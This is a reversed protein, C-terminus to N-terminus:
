RHTLRPARRSAPAASRLARDITRATTRGSWGNLAGMPHAGAATHWLGDIPTKYGAMSPVPRWPGMQTTTMDAHLINGRYNRQSLENPGKVYSGIVADKTGPAYGDVIDLCHDHFADKHDDWNRGGSLEYPVAPAYVYLTEGESGPPVQTRDIASPMAVWMPVEEPLEGNICSSVGRRVYDMSDGMMLYGNWLEPRGCALEPRSSLAVDGKILSINWRLVRLARLEDQTQRPVHEEEVLSTMLTTPDMAGIVHTGHLEEGSALVVGHAVGDRVLVREVAADARVDGGHQRVVEALAGTFAGSGGVPRTLGWEFMVVMMGLVLGSAPEQIPSMTSVAFNALCAKLEEREFWEELIQEPSGLLLRAAPALSKRHRVARWLLEAVTKPRPRTPHDQLYPAATWWLDRMIRCFRDFQEADRRSFRAIEQVTKQRDRWLAISEGDTGVWAGWPDPYKLQLGYQSLRLDDIVSNPISTLATDLACPNMKFGPAEAVTEETTCYGGIIERSELVIVRRGERALYAACTLGNHGGGIVIADYANGGVGTDRFV